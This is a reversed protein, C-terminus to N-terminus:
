DDAKRWNSLMTTWLGQFNEWAEPMFKEASPFFWRGSQVRPPMQRATHRTVRGSRTSYTVVKNRNAGFEGGVAAQGATIGGSGVKRVGGVQIAIINGGMPKVLPGAKRVLHNHSRARVKVKDALPTTVERKARRRIDKRVDAPAERIAARLARLGATDKVVGVKVTASM